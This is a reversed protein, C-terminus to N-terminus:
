HIPVSFEYPFGNANLKIVFNAIFKKHIHFKSRDIYQTLKMVDSIEISKRKENSIIM